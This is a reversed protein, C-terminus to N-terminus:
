LYEKILNENEDDDGDNKKEIEECFDWIEKSCLQRLQIKKAQISKIENGHFTGRVLLKNYSGTKYFIPVLQEIKLVMDKSIGNKKDALFSTTTGRDCFIYEHANKRLSPGVGVISHIGVINTIKKHRSRYFLIEILQKGSYMDGRKVRCSKSIMELEDTCDDFVICLNPNCKVFKAAIKENDTFSNPYVHRRKSMMCYIRDKMFKLITENRKEKMIEATKFNQKNNLNNIIEDTKNEILSIKSLSEADNLKQLISMLTQKNNAKKYISMVRNQRQLINELNKITINNYILLKPIKETFNNNDKESNSFVCFMPVEDRIEDMIYKIMVTKGSGTGGYILITENIFEKINHHKDINFEDGNKTKITINNKTTHNFM